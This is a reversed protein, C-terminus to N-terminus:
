APQLVVIWEVDEAAGRTRGHDELRRRRLPRPMPVGLKKLATGLFSSDQFPVGHEACDRERGEEGAAGRRGSRDRGGARRRRRQFIPRPAQLVAAVLGM